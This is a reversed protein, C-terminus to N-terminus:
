SRLFHSNDHPKPLVALNGYALCLDFVCVFLFFFVVFLLCFVFVIFFFLLFLFPRFKMVKERSGRKLWNKERAGVGWLGM